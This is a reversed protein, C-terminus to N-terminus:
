KFAVRGRHSFRIFSPRSDITDITQRKLEKDWSIDKLPGAIFAVGINFLLVSVLTEITIDFPIKTDTRDLAKLLSLDTVHPRYSLTDYYEREYTSYAAHFLIVSALLCILRGTTSPM